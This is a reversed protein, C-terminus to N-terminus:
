GARLRAVAHLAVVLDARHRASILQPDCDDDFFVRKRV